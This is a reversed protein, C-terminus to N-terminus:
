RKPASRSLGDLIARLNAQHEAELLAGAFAEATDDGRRFARLARAAVILNRHAAERM